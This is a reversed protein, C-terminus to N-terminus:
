ENRNVRDKAADIIEGDFTANVIEEPHGPVPRPTYVQTTDVAGLLRGHVSTDSLPMDVEASGTIDNKWTDESGRAMARSFNSSYLLTARDYNVLWSKEDVSAYFFFFFGYGFPMVYKLMEYLASYDDIVEDMGIILTHDPLEIGIGTDSGSIETITVSTRIHKIKLFLYIIQKIALLSGKNRVIHPFASLILRLTEDTFEKDTYFGIKTQLLSLIGSNCEETNLLRVISDADYKCGNVVEDLLRCLWQFNRSKNVYISPTNNQLRIVKM